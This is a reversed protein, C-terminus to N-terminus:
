QMQQINNCVSPSAQPPSMSLRSDLEAFMFSPASNDTTERMAFSRQQGTSDSAPLVLEIGGAQMCAEHPTM